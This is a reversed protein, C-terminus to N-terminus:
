IFKTNKNINKLIEKKIEFNYEGARLIVIPQYIEKLIKPSLVQLDTGYLFGGQKDPDNDLINLIKNKNLGNFLLM